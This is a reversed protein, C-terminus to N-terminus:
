TKLNVVEELEVRHQDFYNKRDTATKLYKKIVVVEELKM